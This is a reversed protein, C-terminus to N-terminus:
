NNVVPTFMQSLKQKDKIIGTVLYCIGNSVVITLIVWINYTGMVVLMQFYDLTRLVM